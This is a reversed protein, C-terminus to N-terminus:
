ILFAHSDEIRCEELDFPVGGDSDVPYSRPPVRVQFLRTGSLPPSEGEPTEEKLTYPKCRIEKLMCTYSLHM